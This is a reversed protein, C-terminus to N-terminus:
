LFSHLWKITDSRFELPMLKSILVSHNVRDFAKGFDAYILDVALKEQFSENIFSFYILLNSLSAKGKTFGHQQACLISSSIWPLQVSVIEDLIKPIVSQNCVGRYNEVKTKVGFKFIPAVYSGKWLDPFKSECISSEFLM